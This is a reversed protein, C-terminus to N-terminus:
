HILKSLSKEHSSATRNRTRDKRKTRRSLPRHNENLTRECYKGDQDRCYNKGYYGRRANRDDNPCKSCRRCCRVTVISTKAPSTVDHTHGDAPLLKTEQLFKPRHLPNNIAFSLGFHFLLVWESSDWIQKQLWHSIRNFSRFFLDLYQFCLHKYQQELAVHVCLHKYQHELAVHVCSGWLDQWRTLTREHDSVLFCQSWNAPQFTLASSELCESVM